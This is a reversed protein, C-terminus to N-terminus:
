IIVLVSKTTKCKESNCPKKETHNIMTLNMVKLCVYNIPRRFAYLIIERKNIRHVILGM